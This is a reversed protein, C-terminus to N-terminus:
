SSFPQVPSVQFQRCFNNRNLSGSLQFVPIEGIVETLVYRHHTLWSNRCRGGAARIRRPQQYRRGPQVCVQFDPQVQWWPALQTQYTLELVTESSWIPTGAATLAAFVQDGSRARDSIGAWEVGLGVTDNERGFAGKYSVGANIFADVLNRDSPAGMARLFVDAGEDKAGAPRFMLQDIVGYVSWDM